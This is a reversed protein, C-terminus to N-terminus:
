LKLNDNDGRKVNINSVRKREQLPLLMNALIHIKKAFIVYKILPHANPFTAVHSKKEDQEVHEGEKEGCM